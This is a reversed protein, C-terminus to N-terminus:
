IALTLIRLEVGIALIGNKGLAVYIALVTLCSFHTSYIHSVIFCVRKSDASKLDRHFSM